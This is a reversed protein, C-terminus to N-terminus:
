EVDDACFSRQVNALGKGEAVSFDRLKASTNLPYTTRQVTSTTPRKSTSSTSYSEGGLHMASVPDGLPPRGNVHEISKNNYFDGIIDAGGDRGKNTEWFNTGRM